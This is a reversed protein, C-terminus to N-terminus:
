DHSNKETTVTSPGIVVNFLTLADTLVIVPVDRCLASILDRRLVLGLDAADALTYLEGRLISRVVCHSKLSSFYVANWKATDYNLLIIYRLQITHDLNKAFSAYAYLVVTISSLCLRHVLLGLSPTAHARAVWTNLVKVHVKSFTQVTRHSWLPVVSVLEPRTQCLLAVQNQLSRFEDFKADASLFQLHVAYSPQELRYGGDEAPKIRM